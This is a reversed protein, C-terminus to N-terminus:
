CQSDRGSVKTYIGHVYAMDKLFGVSFVPTPDLTRLSGPGNPDNLSWEMFFLLAALLLFSAICYYETKNLIIYILKVLYSITKTSCSNKDMRPGHPDRVVPHLNLHTSAFWHTSKLCSTVGSVKHMIYVFRDSVMIFLTDPISSEKRCTHNKM